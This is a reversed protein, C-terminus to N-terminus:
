PMAVTFGCGTKIQWIHHLTSLHSSRDSATNSNPRPVVAQSSNGALHHTFIRTNSTCYLSDIFKPLTVLLHTSAEHPQVVRGWHDSM